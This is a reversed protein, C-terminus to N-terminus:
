QLIVEIPIVVISSLLNRSNNDSKKKSIALAKKIVPKIFKASKIEHFMKKEVTNFAKSPELRNRYKEQFNALIPVSSHAGIEV